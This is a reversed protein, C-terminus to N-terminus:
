EGCRDFIGYPMFASLEGAVTLRRGSPRLSLVRTSLMEAYRTSAHHVSDNETDKDNDKDKGTYSLPYLAM